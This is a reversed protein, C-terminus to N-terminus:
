YSNDPTQGLIDYVHKQVDICSITPVVDPERNSLAMKVRQIRDM